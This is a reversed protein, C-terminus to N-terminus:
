NNENTYNIPRYTDYLRNNVYENWEPKENQINIGEGYGVIINWAFTKTDAASINAPVNQSSEFLDGRSALSRCIWAIGEFKLEVNKLTRYAEDIDGDQNRMAM